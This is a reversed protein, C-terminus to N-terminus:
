HSQAWRSRCTSVCERGVRREESRIEKADVHRELLTLGFLRMDSTGRSFPRSTVGIGIASAHNAFAPLGGGNSWLERERKQDIVTHAPLDSSCVDSSWDSIRM